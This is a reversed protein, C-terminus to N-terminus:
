STRRQCDAPVCTGPLDLDNLKAFAGFFKLAAENYAQAADRETVFHGLHRRKTKVRIQAKWKGRDKRWYVGKFVSRGIRKNSNAQNQSPTAPRLNFRRNNLGNGDRHDTQQYPFGPESFGMIARHMFVRGSVAYYGKRDARPVARWSYSSVLAFDAEDVLAFQGQTLPVVRYSGHEDGRREATKTRANM